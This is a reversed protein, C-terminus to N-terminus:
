PADGVAPVVAEVANAGPLVASVVTDFAAALPADTAAETGPGPEPMTGLLWADFIKRAIPAATTGGYGGHEVVV